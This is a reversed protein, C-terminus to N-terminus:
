LNQLDLRQSCNDTFECSKSYSFYEISYTLTPRCCTYKTLKGTDLLCESRWISHSQVDINLGTWLQLKTRNPALMHPGYSLTQLSLSMNCESYWVGSQDWDLTIQHDQLRRRRQGMCWHTEFVPSRFGKFPCEYMLPDWFFLTWPRTLILCDVDTPRLAVILHNPRM